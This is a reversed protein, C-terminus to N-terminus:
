GRAEGQSVGREFATRSPGSMRSAEAVQELRRVLEAHIGDTERAPARTAGILYGLQQAAEPERPARSTLEDAVRTFATGIRAIEGADDAGYVCRSIRESQGGQASQSVVASVRDTDECWSPLPAEPTGCGSGILSTATLGVALLRLMRRM